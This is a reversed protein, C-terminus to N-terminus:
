GFQASAVNEADEEFGTRREIASSEAGADHVFQRQEIRRFDGAVIANGEGDSGFELERRQAVRARLLEAGVNRDFGIKLVDIAFSVTPCGNRATRQAKARSISNETDMNVPIMSCRPVISDRESCLSPPRTVM